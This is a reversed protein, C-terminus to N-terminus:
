EDVRRFIARGEGLAASILPNGDRTMRGIEARTYPFVDVGCPFAGPLFAPIRELCPRDSTSLIILLDVDSGPVAGGKVLSGFVVIEEIEPFRAALALSQFLAKVAKEAPRSRRSRRGSTSVMMSRTVLTISTGSPKVFGTVPARLWPAM